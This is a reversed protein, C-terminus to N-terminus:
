GRCVLDALVRRPRVSKLVPRVESDEPNSCTVPVSLLPAPTPPIRSAAAKIKTRNSLPVLAPRRAVPSRAAPASTPAVTRSRDGDSAAPDRANGSVDCHSGDALTRGHVNGDNTRPVHSQHSAHAHRSRAAM